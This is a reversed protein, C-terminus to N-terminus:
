TGCEQSFLLREAAAFLGRRVAEDADIQTVAFGAHPLAAAYLDALPGAAVLHAHAAGAAFRRAGALEIGVLLGSLRARRTAPARDTLLSAARIEFLRNTIREPEAFAADVGDAFAAADMPEDPAGLAGALTSHAALLSFLEGTPFTAFATVCADELRVWKSHTGPLCALGSPLGGASLGLLQTEEGRMVDPRDADRQAIGPLIRVSRAMGPVAVAREVLSHLRAPVDVYSAEHWGQRAGAMGAIVVPLNHPAGVAALHSELVAEFGETGARVMGQDSRREAHVAGDRGLLWM